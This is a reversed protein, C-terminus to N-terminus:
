CPRSCCGVSVGEMGLCCRIEVVMVVMREVEVLLGKWGLRYWGVWCAEVEVGWDRKWRLIVWVRSVHVAVVDIVWWGWWRSPLHPEVNTLRLTYGEGNEVPRPRRTWLAQIM